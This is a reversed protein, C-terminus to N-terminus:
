LVRLAPDSAAPQIYRLAMLGRGLLIDAEDMTQEARLGLGQAKAGSAQPRPEIVDSGM